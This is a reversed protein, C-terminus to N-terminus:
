LPSFLISSFHKFNAKNIITNMPNEMKNFKKYEVKMVPLSYWNLTPVSMNVGTVILKIM